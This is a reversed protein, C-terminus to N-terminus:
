LGAEQRVTLVDIGEALGAVDDADILSPAEPPSIALEQSFVFDEETLMAM